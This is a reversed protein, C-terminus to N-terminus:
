NYVLLIKSMESTLSEEIMATTVSSKCKLYMTISSEDELLQHSLSISSGHMSTFDNLPSVNLVLEKLNPLRRKLNEESRKIINYVRVKDIAASKADPIIVHIIM